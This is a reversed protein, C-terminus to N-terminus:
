RDWCEQNNGSATRVGTHTLQFTGCSDNAQRGGAIPVAQITYSTATVNGSFSITYHGNESQNRILACGEYTNNVTYCREMAQAQELLAMKADARNNREIYSVYSPLAVAALIAIVAVTIM